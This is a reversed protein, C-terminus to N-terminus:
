GMPKRGRINFTAGQEDAERGASMLQPAVSATLMCVLTHLSHSQIRQTHVCCLVHSPAPLLTQQYEALLTHITNSYNGTSAAPVHFFVLHSDSTSLIQAAREHLQCTFPNSTYPPM